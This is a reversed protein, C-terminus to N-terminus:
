GIQDRLRILRMRLLPGAALDFPRAAEKCAMQYAEYDRVDDPLTRLDDEPLGVEAAPSVQQFVEDRVTLFSTRLTEHRAVIRAVARRLARTDLEGKLRMGSSINLAATGPELQELFWLRQQALSLPCLRVGTAGREMLEALLHRKQEPSLATERPGKTRM